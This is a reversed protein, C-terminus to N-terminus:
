AGRQVIAYQLELTAWKGKQAMNSGLVRIHVIYVSKAIAQVDAQFFGPSFGDNLAQLYSYGLCASHVNIGAGDRGQQFIDEDGQGVM